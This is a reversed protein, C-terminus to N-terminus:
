QRVIAQCPFQFDITTAGPMRWAACSSGNLVVQTASALSWGNTADQSVASGNVVVRAGASKTSDIKVAAGGDGRLDFTCSKVASVARSLSSEIMAQNTGDPMYPQTPGAMMAYTGVTLGRMFPKNTAIADMRWGAVGMCQDYFSYADTNPALPALTPEGAGANAFSQLIAPALTSAPHKLGMVITTIGNAKLGQLGGVVSDPPCLVNGDDCYDPEGDTIFLINKDAAMPDALLQAGVLDLAQRAPGEFKQGAETTSPPPALGNYAAAIAAHNGLSAAVTTLLPCTGGRAPNTGTFATFGFRVQTQLASVVMLASDRLRAWVTDAPNTCSPEVMGATAICDFMSMSRDVLLHVTPARATFTYSGVACSADSPPGGDTPAGGTGVRGGSSAGGDTPAGGTGVHGGSATMGGSGDGGGSGLVSEGGHGRLKSYDHSCSTAAVALVLALAPQKM